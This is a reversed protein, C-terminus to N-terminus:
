IYSNRQSSRCRAPVQEGELSYNDRDSADGEEDPTNDFCLSNAGSNM